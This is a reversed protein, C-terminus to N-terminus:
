QISCLAGLSPALSLVWSALPTQLGIPPVVIHVLWYGWLQTELQMHLMHMHRGDSPLSAGKYESTWIGWYLPIGPGPLLLPRTPLCPTPFTYPAKPIANSIYIFFIDLLFNHYEFFSFIFVHLVVIFFLSHCSLIFEPPSWVAQSHLKLFQPPKTFFILTQCLQQWHMLSSLLILFNSLSSCLLSSLNLTPTLYPACSVTTITNTNNLNFTHFIVPDCVSLAWAM